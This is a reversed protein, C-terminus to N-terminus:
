WSSHLTTSCWRMDHGYQRWEAYPLLKTHLVNILPLINSRDLIAHIYLNMRGNYSYNFGIHYLIGQVGVVLTTGSPCFRITSIRARLQFAPCALTAPKPRSRLRHPPLHLRWLCLMGQDDGSALCGSHYCYELVSIVSDGRHSESKSTPVTSDEVLHFIENHRSPDSSCTDIMVLLGNTGSIFVCNAEELYLLRVPRQDKFIGELEIVASPTVANSLMECQLVYFKRFFPLVREYEQEPFPSSRESQSDNLHDSSQEWSNMSTNTSGEEDCLDYPDIRGEVLIHLVRRMPNFYDYSIVASIVHFVNVHISGVRLNTGISLVNRNERKDMYLNCSNEHTYWVMRSIFESTDTITCPLNPYILHLDENLCISHDYDFLETPASPLICWSSPSSIIFISRRNAHIPLTFLIDIEDGMTDITLGFRQSTYGGSKM